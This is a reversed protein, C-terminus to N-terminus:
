AARRAPQRARRQAPMDFWPRQAPRQFLYRDIRAREWLQGGLIDGPIIEGAILRDLMIPDLRLAVAALEVRGNTWRAIWRALRRAGENPVRAPLHMKRM